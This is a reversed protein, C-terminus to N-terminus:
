IEVILAAGEGGGICLTACGRRVSRQKMAYLLTTLIRAGSAGIPHGLAVAGGNVNVIDNSIQLEKIAAMAVNAFAENIEWLDIDKTKLNAKKLAKKVAEAPSLTFWKPDQAFSAYSVIRALPKVKLKKVQESNAIVLAAAGDNIKSANAATITGEQEFAPKLKSIKEFKVKQPEEDNDITETTKRNKIQIPVIEEKFTNNKQADLARQYSEVAFADQEERSFSYKRACEEACHGMHIDNYPDWLGDKIMSDTLKAPGMRYGSRSKELLHPALSMNEQGGAVILEAHGLQIADAAIMVAKLGSGCVKNITLCETSEPLGAYIAAQRAPAQGAGATLVHGMICEQIASPSITAKAIASKIAEAGLQPSPIQALAGQFAGIPTRAASLIYVSM